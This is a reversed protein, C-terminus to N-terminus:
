TNFGLSACPSFGNGVLRCFYTSTSAFTNALAGAQGTQLQTIFASNGFGQGAALGAFAAEFLPIATQGPLGTNAFGTRGNATNIALNRQADQFQKLFGNEFINVENINFTHWLRVGRNGAYRVELVSGQGLERQISASWTQEYPARIDPDITSITTNTFAFNSLALPFSFSAPFLKFAPLPDGL